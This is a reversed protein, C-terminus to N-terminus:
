KRLRDVYMGYSERVLQGDKEMNAVLRRIAGPDKNLLRSIDSPSLPEEAMIVVDLIDRRAKSIGADDAKGLLTWKWTTKDWIVDYDDEEIDRGTAHLIAEVSKRPRELYLLTDCSGSIANTGSVMDVWDRSDQKRTHHVIIATVNFDKCINGIKSIDGADTRYNPSSSGTMPPRIKDLIDVVVVQVKKHNELYCCLQEEGGESGFRPFDTCIDLNPPFNGSTIRNIRAQARRYSSELDMYFVNLREIVETGLVPQELCADCLLNLILASKGTKPPSVIMTVGELPIIGNLIWKMKGFEKKGLESASIIGRRSDENM